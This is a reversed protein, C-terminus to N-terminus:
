RVRVGVVFGDCSSFAHEAATISWVSRPFSPNTDCTTPTLPQLWLKGPWSGVVYM